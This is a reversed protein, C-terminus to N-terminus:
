APVTGIMPTLTSSAKTRKMVINLPLLSAAESTTSEFIEFGPVSRLRPALFAVVDASTSAIGVAYLYQGIIDGHFVTFAQDHLKKTKTESLARLGSLLQALVPRSYLGSVKELAAIDFLFGAVQENAIFDVFDLSHFKWEPSVVVPPTPNNAVLSPVPQQDDESFLSPGDDISNRAKPM